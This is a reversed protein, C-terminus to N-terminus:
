LSNCLTVLLLWVLQKWRHRAPNLEKAYELRASKHRFTLLPKRSAKRGFLGSKHLTHKVTSIHVRIGTAELSKTLDGATQKPNKCPEQALKRTGRETV